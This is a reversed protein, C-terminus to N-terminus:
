WYRGNKEHYLSAPDQSDDLPNTLHTYSVAIASVALVTEAAASSFSSSLYGAVVIEALVEVM